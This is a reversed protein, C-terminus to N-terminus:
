DQLVYSNGMFDTMAKRGKLFSQNVQMPRRSDFTLKVVIQCVIKFALFRDLGTDISLLSIKWGKEQEEKNTPPM